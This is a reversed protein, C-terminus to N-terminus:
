VSECCGYASATKSTAADYHGCRICSQRRHIMRPNHPGILVSCSIIVDRRTLCSGKKRLWFIGVGLISPPISHHRTLGGSWRRYNDDAADRVRQRAKQQQKKYQQYRQEVVVRWHARVRSGFVSHRADGPEGGPPERRASLLGPHSNITGATYGFSRGSM